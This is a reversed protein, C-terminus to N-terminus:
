DDNEFDPSHYEVTDLDLIPRNFAEKMRKFDGKLSKVSTGFPEVPRVSTFTVRDQNTGQYHVQHIHFSYEDSPDHLEPDFNKYRQRCVRYNWSM